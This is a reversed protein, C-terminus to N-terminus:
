ESKPFNLQNFIHFIKKEFYNDKRDLLFPDKDFLKELFNM